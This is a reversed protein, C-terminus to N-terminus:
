HSKPKKVVTEDKKAPRKLLSGFEQWVHRTIHSSLTDLPNEGDAMAEPAPHVTSHGLSDRILLFETQLLDEHLSQPSRVTFSLVPTSVTNKGAGTFWLAVPAPGAAIRSSRSPHLEVTVKLLGSSAQELERATQELIATLVKATKQGAGAHLTVPIAAIGSTDWDPPIRRLRKIAEIALKGQDPDVTGADLVREWALWARQLAGKSELLGALEVLHAAGMSSRDGYEHLSPPKSLDGLAITPEAPIELVRPAAENGAKPESLSDVPHGSELLSSEVRARIEAIKSERPPTLFDARRSGYWCIGGIVVISLLLVWPMPIRM